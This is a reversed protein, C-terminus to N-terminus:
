RMGRVHVDVVEGYYRHELVVGIGHYRQAIAMNSASGGLYTSVVGDTVGSEGYNLLVVPGGPQYHSADVWFRNEYTANNSSNFHDM